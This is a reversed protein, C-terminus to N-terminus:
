VGGQHRQAIRGTERTTIQVVTAQSLERGAVVCPDLKHRDGGSRKRQGDGVASRYKSRHHVTASINCDDVTDRRSEKPRPQPDSLWPANHGHDAHQVLRGAADVVPSQPREDLGPEVSQRISPHGPQQYGALRQRLVQAVM